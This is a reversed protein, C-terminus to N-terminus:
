WGGVGDSSNFNVRVDELRLTFASAEYHRQNGLRELTLFALVACVQGAVHLSVGPLDMLPDLVLTILTIIFCSNSVVQFNM